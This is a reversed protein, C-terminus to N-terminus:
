DEPARAAKSAQVRSRSDRQGQHNVFLFPKSQHNNRM